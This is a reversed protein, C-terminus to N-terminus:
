KVSPIAATSPNERYGKMIGQMREKMDQVAQRTEGLEEETLLEAFLQGKHNNRLVAIRVPANVGGPNIEVALDLTWTVSFIADAVTPPGEAWFIDRTFALFTDTIAQTSGMSCYWINETKLEPQFDTIAFECLHHKGSAPYAVLAGYNNGRVGTSAFDDVTKICLRKAVELGTGNIEKANWSNQVINVFRQGLGVQGTGAIIIRDGVIYIKDSPQEITHLAGQTFTTSSDTGIVVGDRCYVGVIATM